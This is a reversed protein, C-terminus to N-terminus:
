KLRVAVLKGTSNTAGVAIYLTRDASLALAGPEAYRWVSKHSALDIAYVARDTSVFLLNRTVIINRHITEASEPPFWSWLVKGTAEDMADLVSPTNRGAYFVGDALAPATLYRNATSWNYRRQALDFSSLVRQDYQETSSSARGSFAGGAFSIADRQSGLVPGGFYGDSTSGSNGSGLPDAIQAVTAGTARDIIFLAAGNHHYVYTADAAPAWMDWVGGADHVWDSAGTATSFAYTKGGYQGAGTLVMDGIVTPAMVNPWQGEFGSKALVDGNAADFAWIATQEHGTVAAYVRGKSVSPPGFAPVQGLPYRWTQSGDKESLAYVIGQGFYVDGTVFVKGNSTVVPNIAAGLPSTETRQWEWAKAFRAPDLTFPVYGTHAANGQYMEWDIAVVKMTYALSATGPWTDACAADKCARLELTGNYTGAALTGPASLKMSFDAGTAAAPQPLVFRGGADRVSLYVPADLNQKKWTGQLTVDASEGSIVNLDVPATTLSLSVSPAPPNNGAQPPSASGGGGGGGGCASLLSLMVFPLLYLSRMHM